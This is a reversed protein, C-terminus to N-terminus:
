SSSRKLRREVEDATIEAIVKFFAAMMGILTILYGITTLLLFALPNGMTPVPIKVDVPIGVDIPPRVYEIKPEGVIFGVGIIVGGIIGWVILFGIYVMAKKIAKIWSVM